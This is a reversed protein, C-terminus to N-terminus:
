ILQSVEHGRDYEVKNRIERLWENRILNAEEESMGLHVLYSLLPVLGPNSERCPHACNMWGNEEYYDGLVRLPFLDRPKKYWLGIVAEYFLYKLTENM